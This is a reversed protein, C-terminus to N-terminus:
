AVIGSGSSSTSGASLTNGGCLTDVATADGDLRTAAAEVSNQVSTSFNGALAGQMASIVVGLDGTFAAVATKVSTRHSLAADQQLDTQLAQLGNIYKDTASIFTSVSNGQEASILANSEAVLKTMAATTASSETAVCGTDVLISAEAASQATRLQAALGGASTAAKAATSAASTKTSLDSVQTGTVVLLGVLAVASLALTASKAVLPGRKAKVTGAFALEELSPVAFDTTTPVNWTPAAVPTQAWMPAPEGVEAAQAPMPEAPTEESQTM